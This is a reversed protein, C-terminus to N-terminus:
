AARVIRALERDSIVGRHYAKVKGPVTSHALDWENGSMPRTFLDKLREWWNGRYM